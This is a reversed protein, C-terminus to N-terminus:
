ECAIRVVRRTSWIQRLHARRGLLGALQEASGCWRMHPSPDDRGSNGSSRCRETLRATHFSDRKASRGGAGGQEGPKRQLEDPRRGGDSTHSDLLKTWYDAGGEPARHLVNNYFRTVIDTNTPNDGYLTKFEASQVFNAAVDHLSMGHEM